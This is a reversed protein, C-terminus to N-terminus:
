HSEELIDDRMLQRVEESVAPRFAFTLPRSYNSKPLQGQVQFTYEFGRCKGPKKTFNGQHKMLVATLKQKQNCTLNELENILECIQDATIARDDTSANHANAAPGTDDVKREEFRGLRSTAFADYNSKVEEGRSGGERDDSTTQSACENLRYRTVQKPDYIVWRQSAQWVSV